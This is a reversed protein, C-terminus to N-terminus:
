SSASPWWLGPHYQFVCVCAGCVCGCVCWVCVCLSLSSYLYVPSSTIIHSYQRSVHSKIFSMCSSAESAILWVRQPRLRLIFLRPDLYRQDMWHQLRQLHPLVLWCLMVKMCESSMCLLLANDWSNCTVKYLKSSELLRQCKYLHYHFSMIFAFVPECEACVAPSMISRLRPNNQSISLLSKNITERNVTFHSVSLWHCQYGQGSEFKYM